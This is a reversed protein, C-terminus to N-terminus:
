KLLNKIEDIKFNVFEPKGIDTIIVLKILDLNKKKDGALIKFHEDSLIIDETFGFKAFLKLTNNQSDSSLLGKKVALKLAIRMGYVVAIGHPINEIKEICHGFSHGFNLIQRFGKDFPDKAVIDSKTKVCQNVVVNLSNQNKALIQEANQNLYNFLENKSQIVAYKLVEGLGSKYENDPLTKLLIPNCIVFEPNNFCGIYNKYNGFDVGNKGGIAADIQALLSSAIFGFNLGRMFVSAVFGTIDCIVGGGFGLIFSNRDLNLKVFESILLEVTKLSKTDEGSPLIIKDFGEFVQPYLCFLNEDSIIITRRNNLLQKFEIAPLGIKIDSNSIYNHTNNNM